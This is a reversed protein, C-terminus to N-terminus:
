AATAYCVRRVHMRSPFLFNVTRNGFPAVSIFFKSEVGMLSGAIEAAIIDPDPAARV